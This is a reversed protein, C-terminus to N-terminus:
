PGAAGTRTAEWTGDIGGTRFTGALKGDRLEGALAIAEHKEFVCVGAMKEHFWTGGRLAGRGTHDTQVMGSLKEGHAHFVMQGSLTQGQVTFTVTWDGDISDTAAARQALAALSCCLVAAVIGVTEIIRSSKM